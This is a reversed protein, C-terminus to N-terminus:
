YIKFASYTYENRKTASEQEVQHVLRFVHLVQHIPKTTLEPHQLVHAVVPIYCVTEGEYLVVLLRQAFERLVEGNVFM